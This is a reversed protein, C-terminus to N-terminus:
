YDGSSGGGGFGGGGGGYGGGGRDDDRRSSGGGRGGSRGLVSLFFFLESLFGLLGVARIRWIAVLVFLVGLAGTVLLQKVTLQPAPRATTPDLPRPQGTRASSTPATTPGFEHILGDIGANLGDFWRSDKFFPRIKTEIIASATADPIDGEAGRGTEIRVKREQVAWLVLAGDDRKEDGLRWTRAVAFAVDEVPQDALSPVVLIAIEHGSAAKYRRLKDALASKEQASLIGAVDTVPGQIAPIVFKGTSPIQEPDAYATSVWAVGPLPAGGERGPAVGILFTAVALALAVGLRVLPSGAFPTKM